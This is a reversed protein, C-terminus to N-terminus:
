RHHDREETGAVHRNKSLGERAILKPPQDLPHECLWGLPAVVRLATKGRREPSTGGDRRIPSQWLQPLVVLPDLPDVIM